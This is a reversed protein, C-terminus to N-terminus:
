DPEAFEPLLGAKACIAAVYLECQADRGPSDDLSDQPLHPDAVSLRLKEVFGAPPDPQCLQEIAFGLHFMDRVGECALFFDPHNLPLPQTPNAAMETFIRHMQGLRSAPSINVGYGRATDMVLAAVESINKTLRSM